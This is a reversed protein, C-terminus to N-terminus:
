ITRCPALSPGSSPLQRTLWSSRHATFLAYPTIWFLGTFWFFSYTYAWFCDMNRYRWAYLGASLSASIAIGCLVKVSFVAPHLIIAGWTAGLLLQSVTLSLWSLLLNIRAGIMSDRRFPRFAFRSMAITERVNSRAWRLLMKCLKTYHTPVDTYVKANEQFLVHFGERLILNTMARDEGINAPRGCFTQNLWERLVRM